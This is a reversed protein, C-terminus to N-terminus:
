VPKDECPSGPDDCAPPPAPDTKAERGFVLSSKALFASSSASDCTRPPNPDFAWTALSRASSSAASLAASPDPVASSVLQAIRSNLEDRKEDYRITTRVDLHRAFKAVRAVDGNTMELACTISAHRIAHPSFERGLIAKCRRAFTSTWGRLSIRERAGVYGFQVFMAVSRIGALQRCDLWRAIAKASEPPLVEVSKGTAGKRRIKITGEGLDVDSVDIGILEDRRLGLDWSLRIACADRTKPPCTHPEPRTLAELLAAVHAPTMGHLKAPPPQLGPVDLTWDSLGTQRFRKALARLASLRRNITAPGLEAAMMHERYAWAVAHAAPSGSNLYRTCADRVTTEPLYWLAFRALDQAYTSRTSDTLGAFVEGLWARDEASVAIPLSMSRM